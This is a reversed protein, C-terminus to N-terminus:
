KIIWASGTKTIKEDKELKVLAQYILQGSDETTPMLGACARGIEVIDMLISNKSLITLVPQYMSYDNQLKTSIGNKSGVPRGAGTRTRVPKDSATKDLRAARKRLNRAKEELLEAKAILKESKM